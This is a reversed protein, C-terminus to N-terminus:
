RFRELDEDNEMSEWGKGSHLAGEADRSAARKRVEDYLALTENRLQVREFADEQERAIRRAIEKDRWIAQKEEEVAVRTKRSRRDNSRLRKAVIFLNIALVLFVIIFIYIVSADM